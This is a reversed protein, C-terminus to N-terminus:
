LFNIWTCFIKSFSAVSIRFRDAIDRVFLGVKLRVLVIFLETLSSLQRKPGPKKKGEGQYPRSDPVNKPGWYQLKAVKPQLYNHFAVLAKYNPFGTYFQIASNDDKFKELTFQRQKYEDIEKQLQGVKKQLNILIEAKVELQEHISQLLKNIDNIDGFSFAYTHDGVGSTFSFCTQTSKDETHKTFM